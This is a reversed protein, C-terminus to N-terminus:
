PICKRMNFFNNIQKERCMILDFNSSHRWMSLHMAILWNKKSCFQVCLYIKIYNLTSTDMVIPFLKM